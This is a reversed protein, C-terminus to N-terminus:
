GRRSGRIYNKSEISAKGFHEALFKLYDTFKEMRKDLPKDLDKRWNEDETMDEFGDSM